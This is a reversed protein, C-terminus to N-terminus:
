GRSDSEVVSRAWAVYEVLGEYLDVKPDFGFSERAKTIDALSDRVDGPRQPGYTVNWPVGIIEHLM